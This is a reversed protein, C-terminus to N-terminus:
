GEAGRPEKCGDPGSSVVGHVTDMERCWPRSSSLVFHAIEEQRAGLDLGAAEAPLHHVRLDEPGLGDIAQAAQGAHHPRHRRLGFRELMELRWQELLLRPCSMRIARLVPVLAKPARWFTVV